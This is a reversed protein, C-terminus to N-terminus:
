AFLADIRRPASIRSLFGKCGFDSVPQGAANTTGAMDLISNLMQNVNFNSPTYIYQSARLGAPVTTARFHFGKRAPGLNGALIYGMKSHYHGLGEGLDTALIVLSNDLVSTGQGEPFQDLETLLNAFQQVHFRYGDLLRQDYTARQEAAPLNSDRGPRMFATTGPLPDGHVMAHWDYTSSLIGDLSPIGFYPNQSNKFELRGVPALNCAMAQALIKIQMPSSVDMGPQNLATIGTPRACAAMPPIVVLELQRIRGAHEDLRRRDDAGLGRRLDSFEVRVADLVSKNRARLERAALEAQSTPTGSSTNAFFRNFATTPNCEMTIPTARSEFYFESALKNQGRDGDVGLDVSSFPQGTGLFQGIRHEISEANAAADGAAITALLENIHNTNNTPFARTNFSGTLAAECKGPHGYAFAGNGQELLTHDLDSVFLCRSRFANLPATVYPLTFTSGVASPRWQDGPIGMRYAVVIVRKPGGPVPAAIAELQELWPLAFGIGGLGKLLRRRGIKM